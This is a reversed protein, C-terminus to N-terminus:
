ASSGAEHEDNDPDNEGEDGQPVNGGAGPPKNANMAAMADEATPITREAAAIDKDTINGFFGTVESLGRLEEMGTKQSILNAEYAGVIAQAGTNAIDSKEKDSVQWLPVFEFGFGEPARMGLKSQCMVDLIITLPHRLDREQKKKIGDYYNRIDSEGTANLGAPSQGFLRVLPIELAGSLQQGFQLLMDSLGAFGYQHTEFKDEGDIVTLGENTQWGRILNMQKMFADFMPGGASILERLKPVSYTRLHAKYVLQAAGQSTSDYGILRDHIREIVSEGWYMDYQRQYFPLENGIFRLLRTYHITFMPVGPAASVVQYYRPFGFNPGYEMVLDTLTPIVMWRDLPLLGKFADKGITDINLPTAPDQGDIMMFAGAGGFLRAWKVTSCLRPMIALDHLGALLKKEQDGDLDSKLEIGAQTMDEAPIDCAAGIIWSTRYGAELETRNRSLFDFGYRSSSFQNSGNWGLKAVVNQISDTVFAKASHILGM